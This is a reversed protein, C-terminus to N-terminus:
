KGKLIRAAYEAPTEEKVQPAAEITTKGAMIRRTEIEMIEAKTKNIREEAEKTEKNLKEAREIISLQSEETM